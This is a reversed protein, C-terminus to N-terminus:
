LRKIFVQTNKKKLPVYYHGKGSRDYGYEVSYVDILFDDQTPDYDEEEEDIEIEDDVLLVLRKKDLTKILNKLKSSTLKMLINEIYQKHDKFNFGARAYHASTPSIMDDKYLDASDDISLALKKGVILKDPHSSHGKIAMGISTGDPTGYSRDTGQPTPRSPFNFQILKDVPVGTKKSVKGLTDGPGVIYQGSPYARDHDKPHGFEDYLFPSSGDGRTYSADENLVTERILKILQKRSLKM